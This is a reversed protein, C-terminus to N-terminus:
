TDQAGMMSGTFFLFVICVIFKMSQYKLRVTGFIVLRASRTFRFNCGEVYLHCRVPRVLRTDEMGFGGFRFFSDSESSPQCCIAPNPGAAGCDRFAPGRRLFDGADALPDSEVVFLVAETDEAYFCLSM